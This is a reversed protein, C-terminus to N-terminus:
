DWENEEMWIGTPNHNIPQMFVISDKKLKKLYNQFNKFNSKKTEEDFYPYLKTKFGLKEAMLRNFM